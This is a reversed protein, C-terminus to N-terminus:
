PTTEIGNPLASSGASQYSTVLTPANVSRSFAPGLRRVVGVAWTIVWCSRLYAYYLAGWSHSEFILVPDSFVIHGSVVFPHITLPNLGAPDQLYQSAEQMQGIGFAIINGRQQNIVPTPFQLDPGSRPVRGFLTHGREIRKIHTLVLSDNALRGPKVVAFM